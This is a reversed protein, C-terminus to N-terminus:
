CADALRVSDPMLALVESIPLIDAGSRMALSLTERFQEPTCGFRSPKPVVDHSYFILWGRLHNNRRVYREVVALPTSAYLAVSKLCSLNVRAHNIGPEISRCSDYDQDLRPRAGLGLEGYPYSFNRLRYGAFLRSGFERNMACDARFVASSAKRCSLHHFSHCALEHGDRLLREVDNPTFMTGVSTVSEMLGFSTYYTGRLGEASLMEGANLLASRPFDDFTFTVIPRPLVLFCKRGRRLALAKAIRGSISPV